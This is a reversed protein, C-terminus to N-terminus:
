GRFYDPSFPMYIPAAWVLIDATFDLSRSEGNEWLMVQNDQLYALSQGDPSLAFTSGISEGSIPYAYVRLSEIEGMYTDESDFILLGTSDGTFFFPFLRLSSDIASRSLMAPYGFNAESIEGTNLDAQYLLYNGYMNVFGYRTQGEIVLPTFPTNVYLNVDPSLTWDVTLEQIAEGANDFLRFQYVPSQFGRDMVVVGNETAFISRGTAYALSDLPISIQQTWNDREILILAWQSEEGNSGVMLVYLLRSDQSWAVSKVLYSLSAEFTLSIPFRPNEVDLLFFRQTFESDENIEEDPNTPYSMAYVLFRGDPSLWNQSFVTIPWVFELM